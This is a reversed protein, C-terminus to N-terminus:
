KVIYMFIEGMILVVALIGFSLVLDGGELIPTLGLVVLFGILNATM